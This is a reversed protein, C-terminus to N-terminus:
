SHFTRKENNFRFTSIRVGRPYEVTFLDTKASNKKNELESSRKDKLKKNM